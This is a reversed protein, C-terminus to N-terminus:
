NGAIGVNILEVLKEVEPSYDVNYVKGNVATFSYRGDARKTITKAAGLTSADVGGALGVLTAEALGASKALAVNGAVGIADSTLTVVASDAGRTALIDLTAGEANVATVFAAAVEEPTLLGDIDVPSGTASADDDFEMVVATNVGDDITITDADTPLGTFTVTGTSKVGATTFEKLEITTVTDFGSM